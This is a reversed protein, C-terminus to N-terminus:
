DQAACRCMTVCVFVCMYVRIVTCAAKSRAYGGYLVVMAYFSVWPPPGTHTGCTLALICITSIQQAEFQTRRHTHMDLCTILNHTHICALVLSAYDSVQQLNIEEVCTSVPLLLDGCQQRMVTVAQSTVSTGGVDSQSGEGTERVLVKCRDSLAQALQLAALRSQWPLPAGVVAGAARVVGAVVPASGADTVTQPTVHPLAATLCNLCEQLPLPKDEESDAAAAATATGATGAAASSSPGAAAAPATSTTPQATTAPSPAIATNPHQTHKDIAELLVPAVQLTCADIYVCVDIYSVCM